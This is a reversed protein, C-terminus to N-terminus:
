ANYKDGLRVNLIFQFKQLTIALENMTKNYSNLLEKLEEIRDDNVQQLQETLKEIKNSNNQNVEIFNDILSSIDELKQIIENLKEASLKLHEDQKEKIILTNEEVKTKILNDDKRKNKTLSWERYGIWGFALTILLGLLGGQEIIYKVIFDITEWM